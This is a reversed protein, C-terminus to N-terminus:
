KARARVIGSGGYDDLVEIDYGPLVKAIDGPSADHVEMVMLPHTGPTVLGALYDWECGECDLKVFSWLPWETKDYLDQLLGKATVIPLEVKSSEVREDDTLRWIGGVMANQQVFGPDVSGELHTYAYRCVATGEGTGAMAEIIHVRDEVGNIRASRRILDANDPVPEVMVVSLAPHDVALALGVTGIHAGIDLAWGTLNELEKLRYEDGGLIGVMLAEDNYEPRTYLSLPTGKPTRFASVHDTM